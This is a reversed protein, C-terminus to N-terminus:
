YSLSWRWAAQPDCAEGGVAIRAPDGQIEALLIGDTMVKVYTRASTRDDFRVKYGVDQGLPSGLEEAIRAAVSVGAVASSRSATM